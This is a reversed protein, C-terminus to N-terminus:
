HHYYKKVEQLEADKNEHKQKSSIFYQLLEVFTRSTGKRGRINMNINKLLLIM